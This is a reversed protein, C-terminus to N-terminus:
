IGIKSPTRVFATVQHGAALAQEVVQLGTRGSAGFVVIKM